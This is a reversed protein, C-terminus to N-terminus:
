RDFFDPNIKTGEFGTIECGARGIFMDAEVRVPIRSEDAAFWATISNEGAFLKNDPMVPVLKFTKIKGLKTDIFETGM